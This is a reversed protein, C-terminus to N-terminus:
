SILIEKKILQLKRVVSQNYEQDNIRIIFGGIINPDIQSILNIHSNTMQKAVSLVQTELSNDLAIATTVYVDQINQEKKALLLYEQAVNKTIAFRKNTKLLKFFQVIENTSSTFIKNLVAEKDDNSIMVNSLFDNLEKNESINEFISTMSSLVQDTTKNDHALDYIAKAYRSALRSVM